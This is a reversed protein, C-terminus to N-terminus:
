RAGGLAGAAGRRGRRAGGRRAPERARRAVRWGAGARALARGRGGARRRRKGGCAAGWAAACWKEAGSTSARGGWSYSPRPRPRRSDSRPSSSGGAGWGSPAPAACSGCARLHSRPPARGMHTPRAARRAHAAARAARGILHQGPTSRLAGREPGVEGESGAGAVQQSPIRPDGAGVAAGCTCVAIGAGRVGEWSGRCGRGGRHQTCLYPEFKAVGWV